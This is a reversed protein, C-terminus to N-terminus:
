YRGWTPDELIEEDGYDNTRGLECMSISKKKLIFCAVCSYSMWLTGRHRLAILHSHNVVVEVKETMSDVLYKFM